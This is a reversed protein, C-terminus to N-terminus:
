RPLSPPLKHARNAPSSRQVPHRIPIVPSSAWQHLPTPHTPNNPSWLQHAQQYEHADSPFYKLMTASLLQLQRTTFYHAPNSFFRFIDHGTPVTHLLEFSSSLHPVYEPHMVHYIPPISTPLYISSFSVKHPLTSTNLTILCITANPHSMRKPKSWESPTNKYDRRYMSFWIEERHPSNGHAPVTVHWFKHPCFAGRYMPYSEIYLPNEKTAPVTQALTSQPYM